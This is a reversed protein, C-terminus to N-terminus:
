QGAGTWDSDEPLRISAVTLSLVFIGGDLSAYRARPVDGIIVYQQVSSASTASRRVSPGPRGNPPGYM